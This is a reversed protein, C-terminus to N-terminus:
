RCRTSTSSTAASAEARALRQHAQDAGPSGLDAGPLGKLAALLGAIDTTSAVAHAADTGLDLRSWLHKVIADEDYQHGITRNAGPPRGDGHVRPQDPGRSRPRGRDQGTGRRDYRFTAVVAPIMEGPKFDRKRATMRAPFDIVEDFAAPEVPNVRFLAQVINTKGSENKGVLCTVDPEVEFEGSDEVSRYYTVHARVLQM